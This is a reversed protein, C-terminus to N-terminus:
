SVVTLRSMSEEFRARAERLRRIMAVQLALDAEDVRQIWAPGDPLVQVAAATPTPASADAVEDTLPTDIEHGVASVVPVPGTM